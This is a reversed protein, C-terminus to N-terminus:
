AVEPELPKRYAVDLDSRYDVETSNILMCYGLRAQRPDFGKEAVHAELELVTTSDPRTPLVAAMVDRAENAGDTVRRLEAYHDGHGALSAGLYGPNRIM